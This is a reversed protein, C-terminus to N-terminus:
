SRRSSSWKRDDEEQEYKSISDSNMMDKESVGPVVPEPTKILDDQFAEFKEETKEVFEMNEAIYDYVERAEEMYKDCVGENEEVQGLQDTEEEVEGDVVEQYAEILGMEWDQQQELFESQNESIKVKAGVMLSQIKLYIPKLVPKLNGALIFSTYIHPIALHWGM